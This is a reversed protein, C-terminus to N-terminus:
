LNGGLAASRRMTDAALPAREVFRGNKWLAAIARTVTVDRTPDGVVLMLDARKGKAIRGRDRLGFADAPRSTAAALAQEASLGAIVLQAIEDHLSM